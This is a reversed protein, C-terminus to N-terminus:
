RAIREIMRRNDARTQQEQYHIEHPEHPAAMHANHWEDAACQLFGPMPDTLAILRAVADSEQCSLKPAIEYATDPDRTLSEVLERAADAILQDRTPPLEIQQSNAHSITQM